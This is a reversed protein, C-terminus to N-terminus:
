ATGLFREFNIAETAVKDLQTDVDRIKTLIDAADEDDPFQKKLRMAREVRRQLIEVMSDLDHIAKKVNRLVIKREKRIQAPTAAM